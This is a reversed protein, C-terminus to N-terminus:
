GVREPPGPADKMRTDISAHLADLTAVIDNETVGERVQTAFYVTSKVKSALVRELATVQARLVVVEEAQAPITLTDSSGAPKTHAITWAWVLTQGTINLKPVVCDTDGEHWGRIVRARNSTSDKKLSVYYINKAGSPMTQVPGITATTTSVKFLYWHPYLSQIAQDLYDNLEADSWVSASPENLRYRLDTLLTARTTM